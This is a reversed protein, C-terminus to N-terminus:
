CATRRASVKNNLEDPNFCAKSLSEASEEGMVTEYIQMTASNSEGWIQAQAIQEAQRLEIVVLILGVVIAIASLGQIWDSIYKM